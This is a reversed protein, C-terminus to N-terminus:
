EGRLELLAVNEVHSTHPFMDVPQIAKVEYKESLIALDRAQTAANCSVYVIRPPAIELLARVVPEDMGARPPDTIVVDPQGHAAVWAPSLIAKMDGAHFELHSLGNLKVNEHADDVADQVYEVGVIKDALDNVYIGISGAGCYLDYITGTKGGVMERTIDYLTKAQATHTQFFSTPSIRYKWPGLHETIFSPGKFPRYELDAISPNQKYNFVWGASTIQPYLHTIHTLVQKAAAADDENLILILMLEGTAESTRFMLNKLLGTHDKINHFPLQHELGYRRVENRIDNIIPRHLHCEEVEIVRDWFRSIHFGLSGPFEEPHKGQLKEAPIFQRNAFTFDVKNRYNFPEAVGV